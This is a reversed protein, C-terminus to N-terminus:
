VYVGKALADIILQQEQKNAFDLDKCHVELQAWDGAFDGVKEKAYSPRGFVDNYKAPEIFRPKMVLVFPIPYNLYGVSGSVGGVMSTHQQPFMAKATGSIAAASGGVALLPNEATFGAAATIIGGFAQTFGGVIDSIGRDNSSLLVPYGCNGSGCAIMTYHSQTDSKGVTHALIQLGINGNTVDVTYKFQIKCKKDDTSEGFCLSPDLDFWGIFPAYARVTVGTFDQFTNFQTIPATSFTKSVVAGRNVAKGVFGDITTGAVGIIADNGATSEIEKIVWKPLKICSIIAKMPSYNYNKFQLWLDDFGQRNRGWLADNLTALSTNTVLAINVGGPHNIQPLETEPMDVHVNVSVDVDPPAVNVTDGGVDVNVVSGDQNGSPTSGTGYGGNSDPTTSPVFRPVEAGAFANASLGFGILGGSSPTFDSPSFYIFKEKNIELEYADIWAVPNTIESQKEKRDTITLGSIGGVKVGDYYVAGISAYGRTGWGTQNLWAGITISLKGQTYKFVHDTGPYKTVNDMDTVLHIKKPIVGRVGVLSNRFYKIITGNIVQSDITPTNSFSWVYGTEIQKWVTAGTPSEPPDNYLM